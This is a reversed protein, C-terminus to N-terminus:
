RIKKKDKTKDEKDNKKKSTKDKKDAVIDEDEDRDTDVSSDGGGLRYTAGFSLMVTEEAFEKSYYSTAHTTVDAMGLVNMESYSYQSGNVKATVYYIYCLGMNVTLRDNVNIGVGTGITHNFLLPDIETRTGPKVGTDNYSYGLSVVMNDYLSYEVCSGIRYATNFDKEAGGQDVMNKFYIDWDAEIKMSKLLQYSVGISISQPYTVKLTSTGNGAAYGKGGNYGPNASGDKFINLLGTAELLPNVEFNNNKKKLLAPFYYEYRFGINLSNLPRCDTGLIIGYGQGSYSTDVNWDNSNADWLEQPINKGLYSNEFEAKVGTIKIKQNGYYYIYRLGASASLMDFIRYAFGLTGGVYYETRVVQNTEWTLSLLKSGAANTTQNSVANLQEAVSMIGFDTTALGRGFTVKPAAQMIGISFFAAWGPAKYIVNLDPMAPTFLETYRSTPDDIGGMPMNTYFNSSQNATPGTYSYSDTTALVKKTGNVSITHYDLTHTRKKHMASNSFNIYWGTKDLMALGAPNYFAADADTSANRNLTRVYETSHWPFIGDEQNLETAMLGAQFALCIIISLVLYKNTSKM